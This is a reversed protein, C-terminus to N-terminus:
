LPTQERESLTICSWLNNNKIFRKLINKKTQRLSGFKKWSNYRDEWSIWKSFAEREICSHCFLTNKSFLIYNRIWYFHFLSATWFFNGFQGRLSRCARLDFPLTWSEDIQGSLSTGAMTTNGACCVFVVIVPSTFVQHKTTSLLFYM